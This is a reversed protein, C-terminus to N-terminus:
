AFITYSNIQYHYFRGVCWFILLFVVKEKRNANLQKEVKDLAEYKQPEQEQREQKQSLDQDQKEM